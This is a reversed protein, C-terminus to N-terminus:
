SKQSFGDSALHMKRLDPLKEAFRDVPDQSIKMKTFHNEFFGSLMNAAIQGPAQVIFYQKDDRCAIDLRKKKPPSVRELASGGAPGGLHM